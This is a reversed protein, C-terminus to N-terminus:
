GRVVGPIASAVRKVSTHGLDDVGQGLERRHIADVELEVALRHLHQEAHGVRLATRGLGDGQVLGDGARRVAIM